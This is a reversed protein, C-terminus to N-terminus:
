IQQSKAHRQTQRSVTEREPLSKERDSSLKSQKYRRVTLSIGIVLGTGDFTAVVAM